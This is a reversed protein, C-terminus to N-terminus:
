LLQINTEKKIKERYSDMETNLPKEYDSSFEIISLGKTNKLLLKRMTIIRHLNFLAMERKKDDPPEGQMSREEWQRLTDSIGAIEHDYEKYWDYFPALLMLKM